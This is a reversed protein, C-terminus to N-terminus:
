ELWAWAGTALGKDVLARRLVGYEPNGLLEAVIRLPGLDPATFPPVSWGLAVTPTPTKDELEIRARAPELDPLHPRAIDPGRPVRGFTEAILARADDPDFDGVIALIANNPAYYTEFFAHVDELTAEALDAMSGIVARSYPHPAPFLATRMAEWGAGNVYDLVNERMENLVVARQVDLDEQDIAAGQQAMRDAEVSLIFPLASSLGEAHYYTRDEWTWANIDVGVAGYAVDIDPWAPTGS